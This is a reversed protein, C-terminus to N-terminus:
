TSPLYRALDALIERDIWSPGSLRDVFGCHGGRAVLNLEMSAPSALLAIDAVPIIPDDEALILRTPTAIRELGNGTVAYGNLYDDLRSFETFREVFFATMDTLSSFRRLDGFRYLEPFLAAKANLSRRWRALFYRRYIALGDDLAQMTSHPRLVPCVAIVRDISLGTETARAAIRLAFNGGLSQGVIGFPRGAFLERVQMTAAVVEDIRCSHFLGENLAQTEGHDRFNLRFVSYGADFLASGASLVYSSDASGEWGHLLLVAAGAGCDPESLFGQLSVGDGCDLLMPRAAALLGSAAAQIRQRRWPWQTIVSQVHRHALLGFPQFEAVRRVKAAFEDQPSAVSERMFPM